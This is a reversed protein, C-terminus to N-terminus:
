HEGIVDYIFGYRPRADSLYVADNSMPVGDKSMKTITNNVIYQPMEFDYNGNADPTLYQLEKRIQDSVYDGYGLAKFYTLIAEPDALAKAWLSSPITSPDTNLSIVVHYFDRPNLEYEMNIKLTGDKCRMHEPAITDGWNYVKVYLWSWGSYFLAQTNLLALRLLPDPIQYDTMDHHLDFLYNPDGEDVVIMCTALQTLTPSTPEVCWDDFFPEKIGLHGRGPVNWGINYMWQEAAQQAQSATTIFNTYDYEKDVNCWEIPFVQNHVMCPYSARISSPREFILEHDFTVYWIGNHDETDKKAEDEAENLQSILKVANERYTLTQPIKGDLTRITELGKASSDSMWQDWNLRDYPHNTQMMQYSLKLLEICAIPLDYNYSLEHTFVTRSQRMMETMRTVLGNLRVRSSSVVKFTITIRRAQYVPFLDIKTKKCSFIHRSSGTNSQFSRTAEDYPVDDIEVDVYTDATQRNTRDADIASGPTLLNDTDGRFRFERFPFDKFRKLVDNLVQKVVPRTIRTHTEPIEVRFQPMTRSGFPKMFDFFFLLRLEEM